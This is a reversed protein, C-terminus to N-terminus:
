DFIFFFAGQNGSPPPPLPFIESVPEGNLWVKNNGPDTGPKFIGPFSEGNLFTKEDGNPNIGAM